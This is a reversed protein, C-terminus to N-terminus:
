VTVAEDPTLPVPAADPASTREPRAGDTGSTYMSQTRFVLDVDPDALLRRLTSWEGADVFVQMWEDHRVSRERLDRVNQLWQGYTAADCASLATLLAASTCQPLVLGINNRAVVDGTATGALAILPVGAALASYLRCPLLWRSNMGESLDIAWVFSSRSLLEGLEDPKYQGTYTCGRERVLRPGWEELRDLTGHLSLNLEGSSQQLCELLVAASAQCRLLGNWAIRQSLAPQAGPQAAAPAVKNEILLAPQQSRLWCRYYEWYFWPSTVVLLRVRRLTFREIWRMFRGAISGSLQLPHIDSVDYVTPMRTLGCLTSIILLELSNVLVIANQDRLERRARALVWTARLLSSLRSLAVGSQVHGLSIHRVRPDHYVPEDVVERDFSLLHVTRSAALAGSIRDAVRCASRHSSVFILTKSMVRFALVDIVFFFGELHELCFFNERGADDGFLARDGRSM